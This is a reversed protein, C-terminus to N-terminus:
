KALIANIDKQLVPIDVPLIDNLKNLLDDCAAFKIIVNNPNMTSTLFLPVVANLIWPTNIIFTAKVRKPHRVGCLGVWDMAVRIRKTSVGCSALDIIFVVNKNDDKAILPAADLELEGDKPSLDSLGGSIENSISEDGKHIDAEEISSASCAEDLVDTFRKTQEEVSQEDGIILRPIIVICAVSGSRCTFAM